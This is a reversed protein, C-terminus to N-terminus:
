TSGIIREPVLVLDCATAAESIVEYSVAFEGAAGTYDADTCVVTGDFVKYAYGASACTDSATVVNACPGGIQIWEYEGSSVAGAPVGVYYYYEDDALAATIYGNENVIVKYPTLATLDGHAKARVWVTGDSDYRKEFTTDMQDSARNAYNVSM